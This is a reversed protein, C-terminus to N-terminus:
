WIQMLPQIFLISAIVYSISLGILGEIKPIKLVENIGIMGFVIWLWSLYFVYKSFILSLHTFIIIPGMSYGVIKFVKIYQKNAWRTGSWRDKKFAEKSSKSLHIRLSISIPLISIISISIWVIVYGFLMTAYDSTTLMYKKMLFGFISSLVVIFIYVGIIYYLVHKITKYLFRNNYFTKPFVMLYFLDKLIEMM